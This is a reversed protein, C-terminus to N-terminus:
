VLRKYALPPESDVPEGAETRFADELPVTPASERLTRLSAQHCGSPNILGTSGSTRSSNIHESEAADCLRERFQHRCEQALREQQKLVIDPPYWCYLHKGRAMSKLSDPLPGYPRHTEYEELSYYGGHRPDIDIV